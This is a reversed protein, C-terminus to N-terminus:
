KGQVRLKVKRSESIKRFVILTWTQVKVFFNLPAKFTLLHVIKCIIGQLLSLLYGSFTFEVKYYPTVDSHEYCEM